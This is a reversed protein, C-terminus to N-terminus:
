KCKTTYNCNPYNSCGIFKVNNKNKRTILLHKCNPCIFNKISNNIFMIRNEINKNWNITRNIRSIKNLLIYPKGYLMPVLRIADEGKDRPANGNCPITSFIKISFNPITTTIVFVMEKATKENAVYVKEIFDPYKNKLEKLLNLFDNKTFLINNM